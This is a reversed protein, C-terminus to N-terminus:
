AGPWGHRRGLRARVRASAAIGANEALRVTREGVLRHRRSAAATVVGAAAKLARGAAGLRSRSDEDAIGVGYLFRRRFVERLRLRHPAIAHEVRVDGAYLTRFGRAALQQQIRAEEGFLPLSGYAGLAPNFGGIQRLAAARFSINAGWVQGPEVEFTAEGKDLLSLVPYLRPGMWPPPESEFRPLIAGGICGVDAGADRWHALLRDLWGALPPADDDLFAIVEEGALAALARNRARSLGPEAEALCELGLEEALRRHGPPAGDAFGSTVVLGRVDGTASLQAALAALATRAERPERNTCVAVALWAGAM